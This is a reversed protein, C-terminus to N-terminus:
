LTIGTQRLRETLQEIFAVQGKVLRRRAAAAPMWEARDVEPFSQRRGSKPPWEMEFQNSAVVEVEFGPAEVAWVRVRKGSSQTIQGLDIRSGPPPPVGLEEAFEREAALAPEEGEDHEGKAISWAQLDKNVWFPGGPHVVFVELVNDSTIRYPLLGASFKPM